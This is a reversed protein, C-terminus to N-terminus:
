DPDPREVGAIWSRISLLDLALSDGHRGAIVAVENFDIRGPFVRSKCHVNWQLFVAFQRPGNEIRFAFWQRADKNATEPINPVPLVCWQWGRLEHQDVDRGALRSENFENVLIFPQGAEEHDLPVFFTRKTHSQDAGTGDLGSEDIFVSVWGDLALDDGHLGGHRVRSYSGEIRRATGQQSIDRRVFVADDVDLPQRCAELVLQCHSLAPIQKAQFTSAGLMM